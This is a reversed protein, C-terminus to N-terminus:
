DETLARYQLSQRKGKTCGKSSDIIETSQRLPGSSPWIFERESGLQFLWKKSGRRDQAMRWGGRRRHGGGFKSCLKLTQRSICQPVCVLDSMQQHTAGPPEWWGTERAQWPGELSWGEAGTYRVNGRDPLMQLSAPLVNQDMMCIILLSMLCKQGCHWYKLPVHSTVLVTSSKTNSKLVSPGQARALKGLM